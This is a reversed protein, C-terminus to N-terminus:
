DHSIECNLACDANEKNAILERIKEHVDRSLFLACHLDGAAVADRLKYLKECVTASGFAEIM